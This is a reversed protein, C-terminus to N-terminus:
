FTGSTATITAGTRNVGGFSGNTSVYFWGTGSTPTDAVSSQAAAVSIFPNKPMEKLWPGVVQGQGNTANSLLASITAPYSGMQLNYLEIQSQTSQITSQVNSLRASDATSAFQPIVIAALIGLIIVVILIEILTFGKRIAAKM